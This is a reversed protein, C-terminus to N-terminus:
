FGQYQPEAFEITQLRNELDDLIENMPKLAEHFVSSMEEQRAQEAYLRMTAQVGKLGVITQKLQSSVTM